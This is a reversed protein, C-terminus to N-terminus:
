FFELSMGSGAPLDRVPNSPNVPHLTSNNKGKGQTAQLSSLYTSRYSAAGGRNWPKTSPTGRPFCRNKEKSLALLLFQKQQKLGRSSANSSSSGLCSEVMLKGYILQLFPMNQSLRASFKVEANPPYTITYM